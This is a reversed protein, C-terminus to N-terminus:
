EYIVAKLFHQLWFAFKEQCLTLPPFLHFHCSLHKHLFLAGVNSQQTGNQNTLCHENRQWHIVESFGLYPIPRFILHHSIVDM